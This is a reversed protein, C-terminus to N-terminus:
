IDSRGDKLAEMKVIHILGDSYGMPEIDNKYKDYLDGLNDYGFGCEIAWELLLRLAKENADVIHDTDNEHPWLSLGMSAAKSLESEVFGRVWARSRPESLPLSCVANTMIDVATKRDILDSM